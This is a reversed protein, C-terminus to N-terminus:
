SRSNVNGYCVCLIKYYSFNLFSGIHYSSTKPTIGGKHGARVLFAVLFRRETKFSVTSSGAERSTGRRASTCSSLSGSAAPTTTTSRGPTESLRWSPVTSLCPTFRHPLFLRNLWALGSLEGAGWCRRRWAHRGTRPHFRWHTNVWAPCSSWSWSPARQKGPAVRAASPCFVGSILPTTRQLARWCPMLIWLNLTLSWTNVTSDGGIMHHVEM